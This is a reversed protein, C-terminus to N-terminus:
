AQEKPAGSEIDEGRRYRGILDDIEGDLTPLRTPKWGPPPGLTNFVEDFARNATNFGFTDGVSAYHQAVPDPTEAALPVFPPDIRRAWRWLRGLLALALTVVGVAMFVSGVVLGLTSM